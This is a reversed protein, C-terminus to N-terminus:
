PNILLNCRRNRPVRKAQRGCRPPASDCQRSDAFDLVGGHGVFLFQAASATSLRDTVEVPQNLPGLFNTSRGVPNNWAANMSETQAPSTASVTPTRRTRQDLLYPPDLPLILSLEAGTLGGEALAELIIEAADTRQASDM